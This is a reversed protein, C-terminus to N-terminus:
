MLGSGIMRDGSFKADSIARHRPHQERRDPRSLEAGELLKHEQLQGVAGIVSPTIDPPRDLGHRVAAPHTSPLDLSYKAVKLFEAKEHQHALEIPSGV